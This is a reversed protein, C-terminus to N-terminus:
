AFLEDVVANLESNASDVSAAVKIRLCDVKKSGFRTTTPYLIIERGVWLDSDDGFAEALTDGNTKNLVLGKKNKDFMLVPKEEEEEGVEEMQCDSIRLRLERGAPIDSAKFYRSPFLESM